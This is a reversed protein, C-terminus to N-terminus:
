KLIAFVVRLAIVIGIILIINSVATYFFSDGLFRFYVGVMGIIIAITLTVYNRTDNATTSKQM